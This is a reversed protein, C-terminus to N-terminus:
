NWNDSVLFPKKINKIKINCVYGSFLDTKIRKQLYDGEVANAFRRKM